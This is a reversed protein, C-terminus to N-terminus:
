QARLTTVCREIADIAVSIHHDTTSAGLSLRLSSNADKQTLGMATLVHSSESSESACASGTSACIGLKDLATVLNDGQVGAFRLHCNGATKEARNGTEITDPIRNILEDALRDRLVCVRKVTEDRNEVCIRAASAMGVLGAVNETGSRLDREQGGGRIIPMLTTGRRVVLVGVGKPGGFKHASVSVLDVDKAAEAVNVWSFAHVADTHVLAGPCRSRVFETVEDLSQIVGTENNAMMVSVVAVHKSGIATIASSLADLDVTGDSRVDIVHGNAAECARLVAHHEVAGCIPVGGSSAV